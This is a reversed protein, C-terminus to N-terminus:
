GGNYRGDGPRCRVPCSAGATSRACSVALFGPGTLSKLGHVACLSRFVRCRHDSGARDTIELGVRARLADDDLDVKGWLVKVIGPVALDGNSGGIGVVAVLPDGADVHCFGDFWHASHSLCGGSVGRFALGSRRSGTISGPWEVREGIVTTPLEMHETLMMRVRTEFPCLSTPM